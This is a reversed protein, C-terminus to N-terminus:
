ARPHTRRHVQKLHTPSVHTYIQTTSLNAHGLLEQVSRLDAGSTLLDTAFSHRFCHPSVPSGILSKRAYTKVIRRIADESLPNGRSSVFLTEIQKSGVLTQRAQALYRSLKECALPYLFVNRIKDGKGHLRVSGSGLDVGEVRLSTIESVRAGTAYLFELLASDRIGVPTSTDPANLITEIEEHSLTQPLTHAKKPTGLLLAPNDECIAQEILYDYYARLTAMKRAITSRAYQAADLEGLYRRLTRHSLTEVEVEHRVCWNMFHNLDSRYARATHSSLGRVASLYEIFGAVPDPM